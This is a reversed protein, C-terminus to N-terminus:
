ATTGARGKLRRPRMGERAIELCLARLWRRAPDHETREHWIMAISPHDLPIPCPYLDVPLAAAFRRALWRPLTAVLDSQAVIWPVVLFSSVRIAVARKLGRAELTRSVLGPGGVAVHPLELYRRLTLRTRPAGRRLLCAMPASPVVAESRFAPPLQRAVATVLDVEGRELPGPDFEEARADIRVTVGPAQELLVEQLRPLLALQALDPLALTFRANSIAPDFVRPQEFVDRARAVAQEVAGMLELARKTLVMGRGSRVLLPDGLRDRLRGLAHSMSSQSLGVRLAARSVSREELLAHLSVLLNLNVSALNM